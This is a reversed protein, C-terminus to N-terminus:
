LTSPEPVPERLWTFQLPDSLPYHAPARPDRLSRPPPVKALISDQPMRTWAVGM